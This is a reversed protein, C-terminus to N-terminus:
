PRAAQEMRILHTGAERLSFVERLEAEYYALMKAEVSKMRVRKRDFSTKEIFQCRSLVLIERANRKM